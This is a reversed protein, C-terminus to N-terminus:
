APDFGLTHAALASSLRLAFMALLVALTAATFVV